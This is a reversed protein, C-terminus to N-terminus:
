VNRKSGVANQDTVATAPVSYQAALHCYQLPYGDDIKLIHLRKRAIKIENKRGHQLLTWQALITCVVTHLRHEYRSELRDNQIDLYKM